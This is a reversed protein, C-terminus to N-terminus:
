RRRFPVKVMTRRFLNPISGSRNHESSANQSENEGGLAMYLVCRRFKERESSSDNGCCDRLRKLEAKSLSSLLVKDEGAETGNNSNKYINDKDMCIDKDMNRNTSEHMSNSKSMSRSGYRSSTQSLNSKSEQLTLLASTSSEFSDSRVDDFFQEPLPLSLAPSEEFSSELASHNNKSNNNNTNYHKPPSPSQLYLHSPIPNQQMTNPNSEPTTTKLCEIFCTFQLKINALPLLISIIDGHHIHIVDDHDGNNGNSDKTPIPIKADNIRILKWGGKVVMGLTLEYQNGRHIFTHTNGEKNYENGNTHDNPQPTFHLHRFEMMEKSLFRAAQKAAKCKKCYNELGNSINNTNMICSKIMATLLDLRGITHTHFTEIKICTSTDGYTSGNRNGPNVNWNVVTDVDIDSHQPLIPIANAHCLQSLTKESSETDVNALKTATKARSQNGVISDTAATIPHHKHPVLKCHYKVKM